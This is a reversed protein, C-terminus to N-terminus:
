GAKFIKFYLRHATFRCVCKGTNDNHPDGAPKYLPVTFGTNGATKRLRFSYDYNSRFLTKASKLLRGNGM